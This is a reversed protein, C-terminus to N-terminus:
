PYIEAHQWKLCLQYIVHGRKLLILWIASFGQTSCNLTKKIPDATSIVILYSRNKRMLLSLLRHQCVNDYNLTELAAAIMQSCLHQEATLRTNTLSYFHHLISMNPQTFLGTNRGYVHLPSAKLEVKVYHVSVTGSLIIALTIHVAKGFYGLANISATMVIHILPM